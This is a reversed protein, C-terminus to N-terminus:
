AKIMYRPYGDHMTTHIHQPDPFGCDKLYGLIDDLNKLEEVLFMGRSEAHATQFFLDAGREAIFRLMKKIRKFGYQKVLWMHSNIWLYVDPHWWSPEEPRIAGKFGVNEIEQDRRIAEALDKVSDDAEFGYVMNATKAINFTFYGVNCGIDIVIKDTFNYHRQIVEWEEICNTKHVPIHSYEPFPIPHYLTGPTLSSGDKYTRGIKSILEPITM